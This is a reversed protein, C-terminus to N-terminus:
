AARGERRMEPEDGLTLSRYRAKINGEVTVGREELLRSFRWAAVLAPDDIAMPISQPAVGTGQTGFVRVTRSGIKREIRLSDADGEVTLAENHLVFWDDGERWRVQVPDGPSTGPAIELRVENSNVVLASVPAGSRYILDEQSWG